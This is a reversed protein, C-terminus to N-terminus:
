IGRYINPINPTKFFAVLDFFASKSSFQFIKSVAFDEEDEDENENEGGQRAQHSTRGAQRTTACRLRIAERL